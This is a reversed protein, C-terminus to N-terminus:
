GGGYNAKRKASLPPDGCSHLGADRASAMAIPPGEKVGDRTQVGV